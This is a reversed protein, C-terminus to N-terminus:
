RETEGLICILEIFIAERLLLANQGWQYNIHTQDGSFALKDEQASGPADIHLKHLGASQVRVNIEGVFAGFSVM